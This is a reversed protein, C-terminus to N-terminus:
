ATTDDAREQALRARIDAWRGLRNRLTIMSPGGHDEAWRDYGSNTGTAGAEQFYRRAWGLLEEDTWRRTWTNTARRAAIKVGAAECAARWSGFRLVITNHSPMPSTVRKDEARKAMAKIYQGTSLSDTKAIRAAAQVARICDEESFVKRGHSTKGTNTKNPSRVPHRLAREPGLAEAVGETTLRRKLARSIEPLSANPHADSYAIAEAIDRARRRNKITATRWTSTRPDELFPATVRRIYEASMSFEDGIQRYTEGEIVRAAAEADRGTGVNFTRADLRVLTEDQNLLPRAAQTAADLTVDHPFTITDYPHGNRPHRVPQPPAGM